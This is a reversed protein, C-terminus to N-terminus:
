MFNFSFDSFKYIKLAYELGISLEVISHLANKELFYGKNVQQCTSITMNKFILVM